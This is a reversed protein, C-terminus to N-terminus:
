ARNGSKRNERQRKEKAVVKRRKKWARTMDGRNEYFMKTFDTEGEGTEETAETPKDKGKAKGKGKKSESKPIPSSREEEDSNNEAPWLFRKNAHATDPTPAASRTGRYEFDRQTFPTLPVTDRAEEEEEENDDDAGFFSFSSDEAPKVTPTAKNRKYLAELPHVNSAVPTSTIASNPINITLGGSSGPRSVKKPTEVESQPLTSEASSKESEDDSAESEEDSSSGSTSTDDEEIVPAPEVKKVEIEEEEEESSESSEEPTAEKVVKHKKQEPPNREKIKLLVEEVVNGNEDVWGKGEVFEAVGKGKKGTSDRLFTAYKTTKEFEHVVTERDRRKKKKDPELAAVNVPLVTKFLCEKGTTFKSKVKKNKSEKMEKKSLDPVTWGRKVNREIEVGAVEDRKRKTNKRKVKEEKEVEVKAFGLDEKPRATEIRIKSGKLISGHLKKQLKSADM